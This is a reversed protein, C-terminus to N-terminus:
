FYQCDDLTACIPNNILEHIDKRQLAMNKTKSDPFVIVKIDDPKIKIRYIFKSADHTTVYKGDLRNLHTIRWELEDYYILEESDRESMNKLYALIVAFELKIAEIGAIGQSLRNLFSNVKYFNEIINSNRGNQVYFVPGGYRELIYKRNVGIGLSGYKTAHQKALSLKIETFCTRSISGTIEEGNAGWITENGPKMFFGYELVNMLRDIYQNRIDDNLEIGPGHFDKGTWHILFTTHLISM